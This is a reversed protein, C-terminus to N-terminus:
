FTGDARHATAQVSALLCQEWCLVSVTRSERPGKVACLDAPAVGLRQGRALAHSPAALLEDQSALPHCSAPSEKCLVFDFTFSYLIELHNHCM